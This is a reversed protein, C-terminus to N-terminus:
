DLLYDVASMITVQQCSLSQFVGEPQFGFFFCFGNIWCRHILPAKLLGSSGLGLASTCKELPYNKKKKKCPQRDDMRSRKEKIIATQSPYRLKGRM